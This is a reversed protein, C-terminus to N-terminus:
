EIWKVAIGDCKKAAWCNNVFPVSGCTTKIIADADHSAAKMKLIQIAKEADGWIRGGAPAGSCDAASIDDLKRYKKSPSEGEKYIEIIGLRKLQDQTLTPPGSVCSVSLLSFAILIIKNM